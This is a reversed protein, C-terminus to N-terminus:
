LIKNRLLISFLRANAAVTLLMAAFVTQKRDFPDALRPSDTHPFEGCYIVAPELLRELDRISYTRAPDTKPPVGILRLFYTVFEVCTYANPLRISRHLPLIIASLMNYLYEDSHSYMEGLHAKALQYQEETLDIACVKIRAIRGRNCYRAITEKVFGGYFPTNRYHRAFSYLESLDPEVSIAVHNFENRTMARIFSGLRYPTSSFVVYLKRNAINHVRDLSVPAAPLTTM